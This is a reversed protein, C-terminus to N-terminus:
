PQPMVGHLEGAALLPEHWPPPEPTERSRLWRDIAEEVTLGDPLPADARPAGSFPIRSFPADM